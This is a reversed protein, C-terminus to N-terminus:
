EIVLKQKLIEKGTTLTVVYIGKQLSPLDVKQLGQQMKKQLVLRGSIDHMSLTANGKSSVNASFYNKAPNPSIVFSNKTVTVAEESATSTSRNRQPSLIMRYSYADTGNGSRISINYTLSQSNLQFQAAPSLLEVNGTKRIDTKWGGAKAQGSNNKNISRNQVVPTFSVQLPCSSNLHSYRYNDVWTSTVNDWLQMTYVSPNGNPYFQQLARLIQQWSQSAADWVRFNYGQPANNENYTNQQFTSNVWTGGNNFQSVTKESFATQGLYDNFSRSSKIWQQNYSDWYYSLSLGDGTYKQLTRGSNTWQNNLWTQSILEVPRLKADYTILTKSIKTWEGAIFLEFDSKVTYGASNLESASRYNHTWTKTAPDWIQDTFLQLLGNSLYTFEDKTGNIWTSSVVDWNRTLINAIRGMDDYHYTNHSSNIWTGTAIDWSQGLVTQINCGGDYTTISRYSNQWQGDQYQETFATDATQSLAGSICLVFLILLTITRM